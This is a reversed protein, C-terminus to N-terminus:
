GNMQQISTNEGRKIWEDTWPSKPQKWIKAITFLAAIFILPCISKLNPKKKNEKPLYETTSNSSWITIRNKIKQPVEMRNEVIATGIQMGVLLAHPKRKRWMRVLMNEQRKSNLWESLYLTIDWQPKLKCKGLSSHHQAGKWTDTLWRSTKKPFHRNLDEAWRKIPNNTKNQKSYLQIPKEHLKWVIQLYKRGMWYTAKGDQQHSEKNHLLKKTHHLEM